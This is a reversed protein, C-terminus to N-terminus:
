ERAPLSVNDGPADARATLRRFHVPFAPRAELPTAVGEAQVAELAANRVLLDFTLDM